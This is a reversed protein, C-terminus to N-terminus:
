MAAPSGDHQNLRCVNSFPPPLAEDDNPEVLRGTHEWIWILASRACLEDSGLRPKPMKPKGMNKVVDTLTRDPATLASRNSTCALRSLLM